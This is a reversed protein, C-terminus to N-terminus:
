PKQELEGIQITAKFRKYDNFRHTNRWHQRPTEVDIVASLPMWYAEDPDHFRILSYHIESRMAQLGVDSLNSDLSAILKTVAGSDRAIWVTGSLPIPYNQGRLQMAVPSSAAPIAKFMFKDLIMGDIREEGASAFRYSTEYDPHLILLMATFGNTILLSRGSDRFAAKRTQRTEALKLSGTNNEAQMQYDFVSDERYFPNGNKAIVAQSVNETCIVNSSQAFYKEVLTRARLLPEMEGAPLIAQKQSLAPEPVVPALQASIAGCLAMSGLTALFSSRRFRM